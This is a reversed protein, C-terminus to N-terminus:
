RPSWFALSGDAIAQFLPERHTALVIIHNVQQKRSAASVATGVVTGAFVLSRSDPSWLSHSHAYQDFFQLVTFQDFSPIFDALPWSSGDAVDLINWRLSGRQDDLTVYALKTSDPSWFFAVVNDHVALDLPWGDDAYFAVRGYVWIINPGYLYPQPGEGAALYGGNPSWLFATNQPVETVLVGDAVDLGSTHLRYGRSADGAVFTIADGTPRWAPVNYGGGDSPVDLTRTAGDGADVLIHDLGRHVLLHRSDPSWDMWMPGSDLTPSPAADDRVDDLYLRLGDRTAGIFAIRTGDPSWFPYHPAEFAVDFRVGPERVHLENLRRTYTNYAYLSVRPEDSGDHLVGSILLRRGDPSWTPWTYRGEDPSIRVDDTGDPKVTHVQRDADVYAIRDVGLDPPVPAGSDSTGGHQGVVATVVMLASLLLLFASLRRGRALDPPGSQPAYLEEAEVVLASGCARCFDAQAPNDTGCTRCVM